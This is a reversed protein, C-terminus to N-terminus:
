QNAENRELRGILMSLRFRAKDRAPRESPRSRKYRAIIFTLSVRKVRAIQTQSM